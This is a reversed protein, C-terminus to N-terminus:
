KSQGMPCKVRSGHIVTLAPQYKTSSISTVIILYVQLGHDASQLAALYRTDWNFCVYRRFETVTSMLKTLLLLVLIHIDAKQYIRSFSGYLAILEFTSNISHTLWTLSIIQVNPNNDQEQVRWSCHGTEPYMANRQATIIIHRAIFANIHRECEALSAPIVFIRRAIDSLLPFTEHPYYKAKKYARIGDQPRHETSTSTM